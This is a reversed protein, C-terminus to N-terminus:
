IIHMVPQSRSYAAIMCHVHHRDYNETLYTGLMGPLHDVAESPRRAANIRAGSGLVLM